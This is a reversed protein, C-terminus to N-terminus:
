TNVYYRLLSLCSVTQGGGHSLGVSVSKYNGRRNSSSRIVQRVESMAEVVKKHVDDWDSAPGSPRGALVVVINDNVDIFWEADRITSMLM